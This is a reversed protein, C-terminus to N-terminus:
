PGKERYPRGEGPRLRTYRDVPVDPWEEIAGNAWYVRVRPPRTTTGLGALIRPDSASAYSGDARSRRWMTVGDGRVIAVRAGAGPGALVLGVWHRASGITNVLLMLRGAANAVVIDTDGDNDVDGFAAGRGVADGRFGAGAQSSVDELRREGVNRFLQRRQALAFREGRALAEATHTVAGNVIALDLMGDNDFDLWGAGFGTLPLTPLRLGSRASEDAFVGAGDNVYLDAGQGTLEGIAIDEDADDDFDGADVGMSAKALGEPSVAAGALLATNRFTGDRQNIWLHNPTGDNAVYLDIWGDGNFDAAAVGLAAGFAASMGAAATIDTFTGNRNNRFLRSPQARFVHPPCYDTQGSLSYCRVNTAVTYNLYHGVFLDMWGDRDVDVFSASVSWGPDATGSAQTV